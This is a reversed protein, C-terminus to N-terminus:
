GNEKGQKLWIRLPVGSTTIGNFHEQIINTSETTINNIDLTTIITSYDLSSLTTTGILSGLVEALEPNSENVESVLDLWSGGTERKIRSEAQQAASCLLLRTLEILVGPNEEDAEAMITIAMAYLIMAEFGYITMRIMILCYFRFNTAPGPLTYCCLLIVDRLLEVIVKLAAKCKSTQHIEQQNSDFGSRTRVLGRGM